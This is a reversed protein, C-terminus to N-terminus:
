ATAGAASAPRINQNGCFRNDPDYRRKVEALRGYNEGYAANVRAGEDETLFNVYVTGLAFPSLADFMGRTWAICRQDDAADAWRGHINMVFNADRHAYATADRAVRGVQGGLAGIFIECEPSPPSAIADAVVRFLGDDLRAFNHSKWYNRGGPTLLPDFAKQWATYPMPGLHEGHPKAFHRIPDLAQAGNAPDGAYCSALAIVPKGHVEPPLFPLPPALRLVAWVTVDDPAADIFARYRPLVEAAQELPYIVLGGYIEPGVAHLAFQFLTVIGFNGGGGRIAWFLEPENDADVRHWAGDATVIEAAVLSDVTTGLKRSLWGFGGGLTLGAVGTTSNIGLPVALGFAQTEHDLDALLAGPEVWAMRSAPDVRVSRMASLDIVLGDDCLATGAINHGGGRVALRLGNGQAFRLAAVIDAVGACRVIAAPHRDVTANWIRRAQEYGDDGPQFVTGRLTAKWDDITQKTVTTM